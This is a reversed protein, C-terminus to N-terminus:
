QTMQPQAAQQEPQIVSAPAAQQQSAQQWQGSAQALPTNVAQVVDVSAWRKFPQQLDGQVAYATRADDSLVVHDIRGLGQQKAAVALAGALNASLQNTARGQQADLRGVAALAQQYAAHGPHAADSLLPAAQPPAVRQLADLTNRGAIGDVHLGHDRQFAEVAARTGAGFQSDTALARGQADRYGLGALQVQLAHVETGQDRERLSGSHQVHDVGHAGASTAVQLLTTEQGHRRVRLDLTHDANATRSLDTRAVDSWQGGVFAVGAGSRNWEVFDRGNAYFGRGNAKGPDGYGYSGGQDMAQVMSRGHAPDVFADKISQYEQPFHPRSPDAALRTPNALPDALVDQWPAHLANDPQTQQLSSFLAAGRLAADRGSQMYDPMQDIAGSVGAVSQYKGHGIDQVLQGGWHESQNYAKAAIAILRAQDDTSAHQYLQSARLPAVVDTMLKDVQEVDHRHVFDVGSDSALFDNLHSKVTSDLDRGDEANIQRGNRSLDGITQERQAASLAWDPHRDRAWGQYADVLQTSVAGRSQGLDSQLTGISYGSNAVPHLIAQGQANHAINGAFALQCAQDGGESSVGIAFYAIAKAENDSLGQM